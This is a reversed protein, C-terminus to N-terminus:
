LLTTEQVDKNNEKKKEPKIFENWDKEAWDCCDIIESFKLGTIKRIKMATILGPLNKGNTYQYLAARTVGLMKAFEPYGVKSDVMWKRISSNM